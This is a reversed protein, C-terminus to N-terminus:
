TIDSPHTQLGVAVLLRDIRDAYTQGEAIWAPGATAATELVIPNKLGDNILDITEDKTTAVHVLGTPVYSGLATSPGSVIYSGSALLEFIRRSCMTASSTVTNVNLSVKYTRYLDLTEQYSLSGRIHEQFREPWQFRPDDNGTRDYIDLGLSRAPDLILEMQDRRQAHKAAYYAGAFAVGETRDRISNPPFHLERQAAFPLLGLEGTIHSQYRAASDQDVTFVYDFHSAASIFMEFNIPDEKNWFVTPIDRSRCWDVVAALDESWRGFRPIQGSWSGRHGSFASEVFLLEPEHVELDQEWQARDINLMTWERELTGMTFEDVIAAVRTSLRPTFGGAPVGPELETETPEVASRSKRLRKKRAEELRQRLVDRDSELKSIRARMKHNGQTLADIHQQLQILYEAAREPAVDRLMAQYDPTPKKMSTVSTPIPLTM